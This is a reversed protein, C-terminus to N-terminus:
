CFHTHGQHIRSTNLLIDESAHQGQRKGLFSNYLLLVKDDGRCASEWLKIAERPAQHQPIYNLMLGSLSVELQQAFVHLV